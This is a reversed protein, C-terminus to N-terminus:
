FGTLKIWKNEKKTKRYIIEFLGGIVIFAIIREILSLGIYRGGLVVLGGITFTLVNYIKKSM